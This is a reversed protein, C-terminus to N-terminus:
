IVTWTHSGELDVMEEKKQKKASPGLREPISKM